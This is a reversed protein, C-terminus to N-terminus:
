ACSEGDGDGASSGGSSNLLSAKDKAIQSRMALVYTKQADDLKSVDCFMIKQEQEWLLRKEEIQVKREELLNNRNWRVERQKHEETKMQLFSGWVEMYEEGGERRKLKEKAQKRSPDQKASPGSSDLTPDHGGEDGEFPTSSRSPRKPQKMAEHLSIFKECHRVKLWCHVYQFAKGKANSTAYRQQAEIM